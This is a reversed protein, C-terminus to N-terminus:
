AAALATRVSKAAQEPVIADQSCRQAMERVVAEAAREVARAYEPQRAALTERVFRQNDKARAARTAQTDAGAKAETKSWLKKVTVTEKRAITM